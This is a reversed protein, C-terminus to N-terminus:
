RARKFLAAKDAANKTCINRQGPTGYGCAFCACDNQTGLHKVPDGCNAISDSCADAFAAFRLETAPFIDDSINAFPQAAARPLAVSARPAIRNCVPTESAAFAALAALAILAFLGLGIARSTNAIAIKSIM